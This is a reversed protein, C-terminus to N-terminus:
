AAAEGKSRPDRTSPRPHLGSAGLDLLKWIQESGAAPDFPINEFVSEHTFSSLVQEKNKDGATMANMAAFFRLATEQNAGV